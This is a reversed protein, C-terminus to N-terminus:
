PHLSFAPHKSWQKQPLLVFLQASSGARWGKPSPASTPTHRLTVQESLLLANGFNQWCLQQQLWVRFWFLSNLQTEKLIFDLGTSVGPGLQPVPIPCSHPIM